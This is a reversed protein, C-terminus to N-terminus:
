EINSIEGSLKFSARWDVIERRGLDSADEFTLVRNESYEKEGIICHAEVYINEGEELYMTTLYADWVQGYDGTRIVERKYDGNSHTVFIEVECGDISVHDFRQKSNNWKYGTVTVSTYVSVECLKYFGEPTSITQEDSSGENEAFWLADDETCGSFTSVLLLLVIIIGIKINM